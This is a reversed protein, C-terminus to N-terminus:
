MKLFLDKLPDCIYQSIRLRDYYAGFSPAECIPKVKSFATGQAVSSLPAIVLNCAVIMTMMTMAPPAAAYKAVREGGSVVVVVVVVM